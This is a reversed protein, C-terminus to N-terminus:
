EIFLEGVDQSSCHLNNMLDKDNQTKLVMQNLGNFFHYWLQTNNLFTRMDIFNQIIKYLEFQKVKKKGFYKYKRQRKQVMKM